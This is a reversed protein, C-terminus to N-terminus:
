GHDELAIRVLQSRNRVGTKRFLNQLAAKVTSESVNLRLGIEKNSLGEFVGRMVHTERETFLKKPAPPETNKAVRVLAQVTHDDLWTEGSFVRRIAKTLVDPSNHKLFIGSAGLELAQVCETDSMGATVMLFRGKFGSQRARILFDFGRENGLDHDLLV